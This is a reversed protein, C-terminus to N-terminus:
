SQISTTVIFQNIVFVMGFRSLDHSRILYADEAKLM